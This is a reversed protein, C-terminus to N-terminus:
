FRRAIGTFVVLDEAAHSLGVNVGCDLQLNENMKFTLGADFTAVHPGDGAESTLELYGEVPGAIAHSFSASNIWVVVDDNASRRWDAGTMAGLTWDGPLQVTIPLLVLGSTREVGLDHAATPLTVDTIRAAALPGGDNGHFNIKGRLTLDGFGSRVERGRSAGTSEVVQRTWPAVFIGLELNESVGFRVNTTGLSWERVREDATDTRLHSFFDAEIQVHGPDITFPSETTDPRDTNLDRLPKEASTTAVPITARDAADV